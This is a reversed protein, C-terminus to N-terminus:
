TALVRHAACEFVEIHWRCKDREVDRSFVCLIDNRGFEFFFSIINIENLILYLFTQGVNLAGPFHKIINVFVCQVAVNNRRERQLITTNRFRQGLHTKAVIETKIHLRIQIQKVISIATKHHFGLNLQVSIKRYLQATHSIIKHNITFFQIFVCTQGCPTANIEVQVGVHGVVFSCACAGLKGGVALALGHALTGHFHGFGLNDKRYKRASVAIIVCGLGELISAGFCANEYEAVQILFFDVIREILQCSGDAFGLNQSQAATEAGAVFGVAATLKDGGHEVVGM